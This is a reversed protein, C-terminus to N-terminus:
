CSREKYIKFEIYKEYKRSMYLEADLYIWNLIRLCDKQKGIKLHYANNHLNINYSTNFINNLSNMMDITGVFYVSLYKRIEKKKNIRTQIHIGGDGDMFGRIFHSMLEDKLNPMKLNFTKNYNCGLKLLSNVMYKSCISIRNHPKNKVKTINTETELKKKFFELIENDKEHLIISLTNNGISGDAWIFGLLYAKNKTDIKDFYKQNFNYRRGNKRFIVKDKLVRNVLSSNTNYIKSIKNCSYGYNYLDKFESIVSEDFKNAIHRRKPINRSKLIKYIVDKSKYGFINSIKILSLNSNQYLDIIKEENYIKLKKNPVFKVGSEKLEKKLTEIPATRCYEILDSLM